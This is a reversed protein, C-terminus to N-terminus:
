DAPELPQDLDYALCRRVFARLTMPEIRHSVPGQAVAKAVTTGPEDPVPEADVAYGCFSHPLRQRLMERIPEARDADEDRLLIEVTPGWNHDTSMPTDFGLVESGWGIRAAAHVLGPFQEDLLPCVVQGYFRRSLEVGPIFPVQSM